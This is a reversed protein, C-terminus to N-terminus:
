AQASHPERQKRGQQEGHECPSTQPGKAARIVRWSSLSCPICEHANPGWYSKEDMLYTSFGSSSSSGRMSRFRKKKSCWERADLTCFENKGHQPSFACHRPSALRFSANAPGFTAPPLPVGGAGGVLGLLWAGSLREREEVCVLVLGSAAPLGTWWACAVLASGQGRLLGAGCPLLPLPSATWWRRLPPALPLPGSPGAVGEVTRRWTAGSRQRRCRSAQCRARTQGPNSRISFVFHLALPPGGTGCLSGWWCGALTLVPVIHIWHLLQVYGGGSATSDGGAATPPCLYRLCLGGVYKSSGSTRLFSAFAQSNVDYFMTASLTFSAPLPVCPM